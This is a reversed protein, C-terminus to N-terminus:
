VLNYASIISETGGQPDTPPITPYNRPTYNGITRGYLLRLNVETPNGFVEFWAHYRDVASVTGASGQVSLNTSVLAIFTNGTLRMVGLAGAGDNCYLRTDFDGNGIETIFLIEGTSKTSTYSKSFTGTPTNNIRCVTRGEVVYVYSDGTKVILNDSGHTAHWDMDVYTTPFPLQGITGAKFPIKYVRIGVRGNAVTYKMAVIVGKETSTEFPCVTIIDGDYEMGLGTSTNEIYATKTNLNSIPDNAKYDFFSVALYAIGKPLAASLSVLCLYDDYTYCGDIYSTNTYGGLLNPYSLDAVGDNVSPNGTIYRISSGSMPILVKNLIKRLVAKSSFYKNSQGYNWARNWSSFQPERETYSVYKEGTLEDILIRDFFGTSTMSNFVTVTNTLNPYDATTGVEIPNNLIDNHHRTFPYGKYYIKSNHVYTSGYHVQHVYNSNYTIRMSKGLFKHYTCWQQIYFIEGEAEGRIGGLEV